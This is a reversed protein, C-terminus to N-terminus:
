CAQLHHKVWFNLTKKCVCAFIITSLVYLGWVIISFYDIQVGLICEVLRFICQVPFHLLYVEFSIDGIKEFFEFLVRIINVYKLIFIIFPCVGIIFTMRFDGIVSPYARFVAYLGMIIFVGILGIKRQCGIPLLNGSIVCAVTAGMSFCALGRLTYSNIIGVCIDSSLLSCAVLSTGAFLLCSNKISSICNIVVFFFVYLLFFVSLTWAPGNFSIDTGVIGTQILACNLILHYLDNNGYIFPKGAFMLICVQLIAVLLLTIFHLPYLKIVRRLIFSKFCIQRKWILEAYGCFVGYGSLLFFCEVGFDHRYSLPFLKGGWFPVPENMVFHIYHLIFAILCSLVGKFGTISATREM